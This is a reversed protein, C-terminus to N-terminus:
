VCDLCLHHEIRYAPDDFLLWLFNTLKSQTWHERNNWVEVGDQEPANYMRPRALVHMYSRAALVDDGLDPNYRHVTATSAHHKETFYSTWSATEFLCLADILEQVDKGVKLLAWIKASIDELPPQDLTMLERLNQEKDGRCLCWPLDSMTSFLKLELYGRAIHSARIVMDRLRVSSTLGAVSTLRQWCHSPLEELYRQEVDLEDRLEEAQALASANAMLKAQLCELVYAALSLVCCFEKAESSLRQAGHSEFETLHQQDLIHQFLSVYGLSMSLVLQRASLGVTLWRSETFSPLKFVELLLGSLRQVSDSRALYSAKVRLSAHEVNWVVCVEDCAVELLDSPMGLATYFSRLEEPDVADADDVTSVHLALSSPLAEEAKFSGVRLAELAVHIDKLVEANNFLSHVSWRLANHADHLACGTHTHWQYLEHGTGMGSMQPDAHRLNDAVNIVMQGFLGKIFQSTVARDHVQHFLQFRYSPQLLHLGPTMRCVALLARMTKGHRLHMPDRHLLIHQLTEPGQWLSVFLQQVMWEKGTVGRRRLTKGLGPAVWSSTTRLRTCNCSYQLLIPKTQHMELFEAVYRSMHTKCAEVLHLLEPVESHSLAHSVRAFRQIKGVLEEVDSMDSPM